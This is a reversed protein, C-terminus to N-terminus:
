HVELSLQPASAWVQQQMSASIAAQMAEDSIAVVTEEARWPLLTRLLDARSLMGVLRGKRLVPLRRVKHEELLRAAHEATSDEDVTWLKATMVERATVGHARVYRDAAHDQNRFLARLWGREPEDSMALRRLLDGETVM